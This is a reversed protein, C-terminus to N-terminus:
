PHCNPDTLTNCNPNWTVPRPSVIVLCFDTNGDARPSTLIAAVLPHAGSTVTWTGTWIGCEYGLEMGHEALWHYAPAAVVAGSGLLAAVLLGILIKKM